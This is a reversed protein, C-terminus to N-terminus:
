IWYDDFSTYTMLDEFDEFNESDEFNEHNELADNGNDCNQCRKSITNNIIHSCSPSAPVGLIDPNVHSCKRLWPGNCEIPLAIEETRHGLILPLFLLDLM